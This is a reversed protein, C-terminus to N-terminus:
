NYVRFRLTIWDINESCIFRMNSFSGFSIPKTISINEYKSVEGKLKVNSPITLACLVQTRVGNFFNKSSNVRDCIITITQLGDAINIINESVKSSNAAIETGEKFGLLKGLKWLKLPYKTEVKSKLTNKDYTITIDKKKLVKVIGKFTYYGDEM